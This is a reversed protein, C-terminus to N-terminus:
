LGNSEEAQMGAGQLKLIARGLEIRARHIRSKVTGMPLRLMESIEELSHEQLDKLVIAERNIEGLTGLAQLIFERRERRELRRDTKEGGSPLYGLEEVPKQIVLRDRKRQRYRDVCLNRALSNFWTRFPRGPTYQDIKEYLRVFIEQALDRAEERNGMFQYGLNLIRDQHRRILGEWAREDGKRCLLILEEDSKM